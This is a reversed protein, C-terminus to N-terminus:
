HHLPALGCRDQHPALGGLQPLVAQGQDVVAFAGGILADDQIDTFVGHDQIGDGALHPREGVDPLVLGEIGPHARGHGLAQRGDGCRLEDEAADRRVIPHRVVGLHLRYFLRLVAQIHIHAVLHDEVQPRVGLEQGPGPGGALRGQRVDDGAGPQEGPVRHHPQAIGGLGGRFLHHQEGGRIVSPHGRLSQLDRHVPLDEGEGAGVGGFHLVAM